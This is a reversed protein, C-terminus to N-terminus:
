QLIDNPNERMWPPITPDDTPETGGFLEALDESTVPIVSIGEPLDGLMQEILAEAFAQALLQEVMNGVEARAESTAAEMEEVTDFGHHEAHLAASQRECVEGDDVFVSLGAGCGCSELRTERGEFQGNQGEVPRSGLEQTWEFM